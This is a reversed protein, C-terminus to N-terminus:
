VNQEMARCGKKTSFYATALHADHRLATTLTPLACCVRLRDHLGNGVTVIVHVPSFCSLNQKALLSKNLQWIFCIIFTKENTCHPSLHFTGNLEAEGQQISCKMKWRKFINTGNYEYVNMIQISLSMTYIVAWVWLFIETDDDYSDKFWNHTIQWVKLSFM